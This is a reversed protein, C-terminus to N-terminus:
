SASTSSRPCRRRRPVRRAARRQRRRPAAGRPEGPEAPRARGRRASPRPRGRPVGAAVPRRRSGAPGRVRPRRARLRGPAGAPHAGLRRVDRARRRAGGSGVGVLGHNGRMSYELESGHAKVAFPAGSAPGSRAVSCCTTRSCSTPPCSRECPPPTRRWGRCRAGDRTCDQVLRVEYGEYRDLVFVPLFGGVDPRVTTAQRPRLRRAAAGPEAGHRRPRRPAVRARAPAHLREIRHRRAPLRALPPDANPVDQRRPAATGNSGPATPSRHAGGPGLAASRGPQRRPRPWSAVGAGARVTPQNSARRQGDPAGHPCRVQGRPSFAAAPAMWRATRTESPGAGPRAACSSPRRSRRDPM